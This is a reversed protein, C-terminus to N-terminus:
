LPPGTREQQVRARPRWGLLGQGRWRRYPLRVRLLCWPAPVGARLEHGGVAMRIAQGQLDLGPLRPAPPVHLAKMWRCWGSVGRGGPRCGFGARGRQAGGTRDAPRMEVRPLRRLGPRVGWRLRSRGRLHGGRRAGRLCRQCCVRFRYVHHGRFGGTAGISLSRPGVCSPMCPSVRSAGGGAVPGMSISSGRRLPLCPGL